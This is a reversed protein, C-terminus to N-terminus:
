ANEIWGSKSSHEGIFEAVECSCGSHVHRESENSTFIRSNLNPAIRQNVLEEAVKFIRGEYMTAPIAIHGINRPDVSYPDEDLM